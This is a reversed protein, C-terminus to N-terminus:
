YYMMGYPTRNRGIMDVDSSQEKQPVCSRAKVEEVPGEM